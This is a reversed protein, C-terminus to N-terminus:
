EEVAGELEQLADELPAPLSGESTEAAPSPTAPPTQGVNNVLLLLSLVILAAAIAMGARNRKTIRRWVASGPRPKPRTVLTPDTTGNGGPVQMVRTPNPAAGVLSPEGAGTATAEDRKLDVEMEAASSYRQEPDRAMARAVVESFRRDVDPRVEVLPPVPDEQIARILGLPTDADFPKRGAMLEYLIVGVSYIDSTESAPEGAIREPALYAPTGLMMGAQTLNLGETMKAVGFDGVKVSGEQTLLVNGPKLDRHLIGEAHSARLASLIQMGVERAREENAPGGAAEDALTRGSLLEMVIFPIGRDEGTDFVGVVNPHSLRGAARAEAEFRTRLDDQSAMDRRLFKLAVARDLKTDRAAYVEGMGGSAVLEGLEYRDAIM